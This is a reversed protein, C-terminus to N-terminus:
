MVFKASLSVRAIREHKAVERTGGCSLSCVSVMFWSDFLLMKYFCVTNFFSFFFSPPSQHLIKKEHKRQLELKIRRYVCLVHPRHCSLM